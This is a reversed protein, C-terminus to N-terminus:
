RQHFVGVIASYYLFADQLSAKKCQQNEGAMAPTKVQLLCIDDNTFFV